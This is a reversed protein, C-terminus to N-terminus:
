ENHISYQVTYKTPNFIISIFENKSNNINFYYLNTNIVKKLRSSDISNLMLNFDDKSLKLKFQETYDGIAFDRHHEILLFNDSITTNITKELTNQCHIYDETNNNCGFLIVIFCIMIFILVYKKM